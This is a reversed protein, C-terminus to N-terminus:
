AQTHTVSVIILVPLIGGITLSEPFEEDLVMTGTTSFLYKVNATENIVTGIDIHTELWNNVSNMLRRIKIRDRYQRHYATHIRIEIAVEYVTEIEGGSAAKRLRDEPARKEVGALGVTIAPLSAKTQEHGEYVAAPRPDDDAAVMATYLSDMEAKIAGVCNEFLENDGHIIAM